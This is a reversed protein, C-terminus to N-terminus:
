ALSLSLVLEQLAEHRHVGECSSAVELVVFLMVGLPLSPMLLSLLQLASSISSLLSVVGLVEGGPRRVM